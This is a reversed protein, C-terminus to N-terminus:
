SVLAIQHVCLLIPALLISLLVILENFAVTDGFYGLHTVTNDSIM